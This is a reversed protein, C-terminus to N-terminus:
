PTGMIEGHKIVIDDYKTVIDDYKTVIESHKTVIDSHQTTVLDSKAVVDGHRTTIDTQKTGIQVNLQAISDLLAQISLKQQEITAVTSNMYDVSEKTPEDFKVMVGLDFTPDINTSFSLNISETKAGVGDQVVTPVDSLLMRGNSATRYYSSRYDEPSQVVALALLLPIKQGGLSTSLSFELTVSSEKIGETVLAPVETIIQGLIADEVTPTSDLKLIDGLTKRTRGVALHLTWGDCPIVEENDANLFTLRIRKSEGRVIPDIRIM